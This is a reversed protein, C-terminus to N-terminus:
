GDRDGSGASIHALGSLRQRVDMLEGRADEWPRTGQQFARVALTARNIQNEVERTAPGNPDYPYGQLWDWLGDTSLRGELYDQIVRAAEDATYGGIASAGADANDAIREVSAEQRDNLVDRAVLSGQSGM